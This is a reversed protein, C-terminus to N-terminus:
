KKFQSIFKYIKQKVSSKNKEAIDSYKRLATYHHLKDLFKIKKEDDIKEIIYDLHKIKDPRINYWEIFEIYRLIISDILSPVKVNLIRQNSKCSQIRSNEIVSQFLAPKILLNKYHPLEGFIDFRFHIKKGNMFDVGIHNKEPQSSIKIELGCNVYKNGWELVKQAIEEPAYAFIDVDEGPCYNPFDDSIKVICYNASDISQFFSTLDLM